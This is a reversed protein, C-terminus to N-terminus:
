DLIRGICSIMEAIKQHLRLFITRVFEVTLSVGEKVKIGILAAMKKILRFVWVSVEVQLKAAKAMFIALRDLLTFTTAFGGVALIGAANAVKKLVYVLAADMLGLTNTTFSIVGDSRLWHEIAMDMHGQPRVRRMALWSGAGKVSDIYHKMFHYEWPAGGMPSYLLYDQSSDPVHCFPWTPVMPVPDTKHHVRFINEPRLASTCQNAFPELGVRPSGFTYLGVTPVINAKKIWDAALTAIAGGLSHGVCHIVRVGKLGILFTRLDNLISDFAYYFGQHVGFGTHSSHVGTNLDTLADYLSATGKIAVFAHGVYKGKGIGMFAMVHTKKVAIFAGTKGESVISEDIDMDEKYKLIFGKRGFKDKISYVNSALEAAFIPELFSGSM